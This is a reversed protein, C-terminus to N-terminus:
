KSDNYTDSHSKAMPAYTGLGGIGSTSQYIANLSFNFGTEGYCAELPVMSQPLTISDEVSGADSLKVLEYYTNTTDKRQCVTPGDSSSYIQTAFGRKSVYIVNEYDEINSGIEITNTM